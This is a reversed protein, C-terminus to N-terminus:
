RRLRRRVAKGLEVGAFPVLALVCVTAALWAALPVTKFAEHAVPMYVLAAVLLASVLVSASLWPNRPLRWAPEIASRLAFVLVLESLALTAFAATRATDDDVGLGIAFGAFSAGGVLVGIGALAAWARRDFLQAGARPGTAMTEASAPDRALAVAPLGDTVLNVILVQIVALPAGLGAAVAVVFVLVEGLNASLLFAVFKRINDGIRRGERVAAVITAFDDDTLVISAAERAAQTGGRGMAVAVDARRLAPADNVGDGTMAVVQGAAQLEEVLRLKEAPTVRATIAEEALGLARGITRATSPHDGTVMRVEIGAARAEDVAQVSSARLPDHFAVLGLLHLGSEIEEPEAEPDVDLRDAVALVRLGEGAWYGALEALEGDADDDVAVLEFAGKTYAHVGQAEEYLLTMRKREADFPLERVVRRGASLAEVDVGRELAALLLAVELPDGHAGEGVLRATSALVAAELLTREHVDPATRLAAVGIRNETLTGTKDTCIVTTEGLTEIADLRRVIAGRRALAAAGFALAATVTAVLGEPVAAVALAVGVLFAEHLPDGRLLMLGAVMLTVLVGVFVLQRALQGLRRQLPTQPPKAAATLAGIAGVETEAGTAVVVARGRGRTVGTGAYLVSSREALPAGPEVAQASKAVPLSEGTLASEDVELGAAELLRADAAVPEGETVLLIDGPVVEAAEVEVEVGDRVVLAHQAFGRSLALIAREAGAEQVFGFVGNLVVIAAIAAAEVTDGIAFSVVAAALLLAVLPDALQRLALRLRLHGRDRAPENRGVRALRDAAEDAPLGRAPDAGLRAAVAVAEAAHFPGAQSAPEAAARTLPRDRGPM